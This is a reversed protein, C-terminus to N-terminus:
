SWCLFNSQLYTSSKLKFKDYHESGKNCSLLLICIFKHTYIWRLLVMQLKCFQVVGTAEIFHKIYGYFDYKIGYVSGYCNTQSIYWWNASQVEFSKLEENQQKWNCIQSRTKRPYIPFIQTNIRSSPCEQCGQSKPCIRAIASSCLSLM